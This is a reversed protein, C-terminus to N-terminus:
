KISKSVEKIRDHIAFAKESLADTQAVTRAKAESPLDVFMRMFTPSNKSILKAAQVWYLFNNQV